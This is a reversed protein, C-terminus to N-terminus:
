DDKIVTNTLKGLGEIESEIVDGPKLYEPPDRFMGVGGPTGTLIVDGPRLTISQTLRSIIDDIRFILEDTNGSQKQVGNISCRIKLSHPDPVLSKHVIAPGLPCFTDMSKGILFQKNNLVKQWDRASIDQAVCYGFVYDYAKERPVKKATKGIVVALEVEWDIQSSIEHAIVSGTPGVLTSAFKSFFMPREPPKLNQEECHGRYNLGICVIKEPHSVPSELTVDATVDEAPLSSLKKELDALNVDKELFGIMDNGYASLSSIKKGDPSLVGLRTSKDGGKRYQVFRMAAPSSSSLNRIFTARKLAGELRNIQRWTQFRGSITRVSSFSM